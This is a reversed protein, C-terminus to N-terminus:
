KKEDGPEVLLMKAPGYLDLMQLRTAHLRQMILCAFRKMLEYGLEHDTEYMSRLALADIVVGSTEELAHADFHWHYPPFLWSWGLVEGAAITQVTVRGRGPVFLDLTVKGEGILYFRDADEGERLINQGPKFHVHSACGGLIELMYSPMSRFFPHEFLIRDIATM